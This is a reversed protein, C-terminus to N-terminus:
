IHILSLNYTAGTIFVDTFGTVLVDSGNSNNLTLTSTNKNFTGGSLYTDTYGSTFGSVSFTGGSNNTFTVVGNSPNYTGGTVTMDTALIGLNQTLNTGDSRKITIDYNGNNFTFGTTYISNQYTTASIIPVKLTGTMTDGSKHVYDSDFSNIVQQITGKYSSGAPNQSTDNVDVIHILDNKNVGTIQLRDTLLAM